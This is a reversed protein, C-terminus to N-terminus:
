CMLGALPDVDSDDDEQTAAAEEAAAAEAAEAAKREEEEAERERQERQLRLREVEALKAPKVHAQLSLFTDMQAELFIDSQL